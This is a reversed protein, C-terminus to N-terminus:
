LQKQAVNALNRVVAPDAEGVVIYSHQGDDWTALSTVGRREVDIDTPKSPSFLVCFAIPLGTERTYMLEAVPSGNLVVLRGGAFTLGSAKFDPIVLTGNVRKGLWAKLHEAQAAPVEVLHVTERSYVSHYEAVETLMRDRESTLLDPWFAGAGYGILGMALSAAIAWGATAFRRRAKPGPREFTAGPKLADPLAITGAPFHSEAFAARLLSATERHASLTERAAPSVALWAEVEAASTDDLEGDAYAVLLADMDKKDTM